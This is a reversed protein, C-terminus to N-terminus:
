NPQTTCCTSSSSTLSVPGRNAASTSPQLTQLKLVSM